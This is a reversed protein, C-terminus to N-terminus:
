QRPGKGSRHRMLKAFTDSRAHFLSRKEAKKSLRSEGNKPRNEVNKLWNLEGAGTQCLSHKHYSTSDTIYLGSTVSSLVHIVCLRCM